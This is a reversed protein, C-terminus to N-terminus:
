DGKRRSIFMLEIQAKSFILKKSFFYFDGSLAASSIHAIAKKELTAFSFLSQM